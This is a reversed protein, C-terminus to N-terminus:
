VCTQSVYHCVLVIGFPFLGESFSIVISCICLMQWLYSVFCLTQQCGLIDHKLCGSWRGWTDSVDGWYCRLMVEADGRYKRLMVETDDWYWRLVIETVHCDIDCRYCRCWGCSMVIMQDVNMNSKSINTYGYHCSDWRPPVVRVPNADM